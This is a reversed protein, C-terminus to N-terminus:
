SSPCCATATATWTPRQDPYTCPSGLRSSPRHRQPNYNCAWPEQCGPIELANCIGDEDFDLYCNGDCDYLGSPYWDIAYECLDNYPITADPVFNCAMPDFCEGACVGGLTIDMDYDAWQSWTNTFSITWAGSGSLNTPLSPNGSTNIFFSYNGWQTTTWNGPWVDGLNNCGPPIGTPQWGWWAVCQGNPAEIVIALDAPWSSGGGSWNLEIDVFQLNGALEFSNSVTNGGAVYEDISLEANCQALAQSLLFSVAALLAIHKM